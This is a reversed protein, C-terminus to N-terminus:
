AGETISTMSSGDYTIDTLPKIDAFAATGDTRRYCVAVRYKHSKNERRLLEFAAEGIEKLRNPAPQSGLYAVLAPRTGEKTVNTNPSGPSWTVTAGGSLDGIQKPLVANALINNLAAVKQIRDFRATEATTDRDLRLTTRSVIEDEGMRCADLQNVHHWHEKISHPGCSLSIAREIRLRSEIDKLSSFAASVDEDHSLMAQLGTEPCTENEVWLGLTEDWTFRKDLKPGINNDHIALGMQVVKPVTLAFAAEEYHFHLVHRRKAHWSYYLGKRENSEVESDDTSCRHAPLYWASGSENRWDSHKGGVEDYQVMDQAWNLTVIDCNTLDKSKSFTENRYKRYDSHRPKPNLQIHILTARDTLKRRVLEDDGVAFADSCIITSLGLIDEEGKFQYIVSGCRLNKNEFFHEDRSSITKFQFLVVRTIQGDKDSTVFCYAVPDYYTGQVVAATDDEFIVDCFGACDQKFTDLQAPTMSECGLVWLAGAAPFMDGQVCKLLTAVPLFYEPTVVLHDGRKAALALLQSALADAKQLDLPGIRETDALIPGAPQLLLARYSQDDPKLMNLAPNSLGRAILVDGVNRINITM